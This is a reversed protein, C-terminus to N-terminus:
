LGYHRVSCELVQRSPCIMEKVRSGNRYIKFTPVIRISEAGAIEPSEDVDVKLFNVSPYKTSLTDLFPSMQLCQQNLASVFHAVSVGPLSLAARFQEPGSIEVVKGGFKLSSAEEGRSKKLSIQAHSLAEAVEIDGPLDNRLVEYDQVAEAWRELKANSAARRLLAKTYNPHIILAEDCDEISKEWQGLKSWCAARNCYLVPNSPDVKLGEGYAVSAETFRGSNFLENGRSRARVVSKVNGLVAAVEASQPDLQAAREACAVASEFKPESSTFIRAQSCASRRRRPHPPATELKSTTSLVSDAEKLRHLQLLAEAKSALLLTSSDAGAAIAAGTERLANKWDGIKRASACRGLHREIAQLKQSEAHDLQQGSSFIHKQAEEVQWFFITKVQSVSVGLRQHARWYTPDLRVAEECERIAETLRGTAILAAARNSHCSANGPCMSIARDYLKLADGFHGRKYQENGTRKVEEPDMSAMARKVSDTSGQLSM